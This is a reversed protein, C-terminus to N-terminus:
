RGAAGGPQLCAPCLGRVEITKAEVSFGHSAAQAAIARNIAPENMEAATGCDRCILFQGGHTEDPEPCGVFANLSEVRHVLGQSLLFDLARYVTPPAARERERGLAHLIGYAGVPAHSTWVLELVQRRLKTLRVGRRHCLAEAKGLAEVVCRRHDHGAASFHAAARGSPKENSGRAAARGSSKGNSERAM